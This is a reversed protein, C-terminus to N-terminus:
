DKNLAKFVIEFLFLGVLIIGIWLIPNHGNDIFFEKVPETTENFWTVMPEFFKGIKRFLDSFWEGIDTWISLYM